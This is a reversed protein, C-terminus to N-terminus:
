NRSEPANKISSSVSYKSSKMNSSNFNSNSLGKELVRHDYEGLLSFEKEKIYSNTVSYYYIMIGLLIIHAISKLYLKKTISSRTEDYDLEMDEHENIYIATYIYLIDFDEIFSGSMILSAFNCLFCATSFFVYMGFGISFQQLLILIKKYIGIIFVLLSLEAIVFFVQTDITVSISIAENIMINLFAVFICLVGIIISSVTAAVDYSLFSLCCCKGKEKFFINHLKDTIFAM